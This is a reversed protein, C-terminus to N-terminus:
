TAVKLEEVKTAEAIPTAKERESKERAHQAKAERLKAQQKKETLSNSVDMQVGIFSLLNGDADKTPTLSLLNWFPSGDKKYNLLIIGIPQM